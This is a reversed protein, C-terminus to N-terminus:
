LVDQKNEENELKEYLHNLLQIWHELKEIDKIVTETTGMQKAVETIELDLLLRRGKFSKIKM